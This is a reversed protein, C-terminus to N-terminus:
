RKFLNSLRKKREKQRRRIMVISFKGDIMDLVSHFGVPAYQPVSLDVGVFGRKKKVKLLPLVVGDKRSGSRIDIIDNKEVNDVHPIVTEYPAPEKDILPIEADEILGRMREEWKLADKVKVSKYAPQSYLELEENSLTDLLIESAVNLAEDRGSLGTEPAILEQGVQLSVGYGREDELVYINVPQEKKKM